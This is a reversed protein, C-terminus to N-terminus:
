SLLPHFTGLAVSAAVAATGALAAGVVLAADAPGFRQPRAVSRATASDFGRADMATALRSGRRIAIVLLAFTTSAFLRLRSIPGAVDIGRARRALRLAEWDASLLPLTRLAALTGMVFRASARLNQVLSDALDTPDTSAFVAISPLAVACLRLVLSVASVLVGTTLTWGGVALLPTGTRVAFFLYSTAAAVSGALLPWLRPLLRRGLGFGPLAILEIALAVLPTVPDLSIVLAVTILMAAALKASPNRRALVAYATAPDAVPEALRV